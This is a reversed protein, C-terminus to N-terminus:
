GVVRELREGLRSLVENTITGCRDAVDGVTIKERGSSGILVAIDGQKAQPIGSVDTLLQDMCIRGIIPARQGRILVEGGYASLERPVGDAYGITITAIYMDHTATFGTGYGASEGMGLARVSAVRAKLSLVPILSDDWEESDAGTSLVGYLAIGVRAYDGALEPYNLVGYSAQMHIDPLELGRQELAALLGEFANVQKKVYIRDASSTGDSTALHTYIGDVQLHRDEMLAAIEEVNRAPIGLRHMGSDVGIHVHLRRGSELLSKAYSLDVVSQTLRYRKLLGFQSSHTYGLVLIDGRIGGKRLAAGEPASAVCFARVGLLNLEKAVLLAGHGYANAKVAPMLECSEQLCSQLFRVNHALAGRDVEVWARARKDSIGNGKKGFSVRVLLCSAAFSCVTVALFHVLSHEVFLAEMHVAGAFGRVAVIFAPHLIYVWAGIRRVRKSVQVRWESLLRFGFIMVPILCVYMSDHRQFNGERLVFGEACMGAFSLAAALGTVVTPLERKWLRMWIGLVLFLPAFFLGNRTYGCFSFIGDYFSKLVPVQAALGYYSDGMLGVAYLLVTVATVGPLRLVRGLAFVLVAGLMCAPFYWLHYFTGDFFVMRLVDGVGLAKYHGAYIGIPVYLLIAAGYLVGTKKLYSLLRNGAHERDIFFESIVFQGTVMFFFPVAVRALVRTLFFDADGNFSALPSTHITIVLLAALLRFADLGGNKSRTNM